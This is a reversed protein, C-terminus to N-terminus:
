VFLQRIFFRRPQRPDVILTVPTYEKLQLARATKVIKRRLEYQTGQYSYCCTVWGGDGLFWINTVTGKVWAGSSFLDRLDWVRWALVMWFLATACVLLLVLGGPLHVPHSNIANPFIYVVILVLWFLPPVTTTFLALYDNRIIQVPSPPPSSYSM